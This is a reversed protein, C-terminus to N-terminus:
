GLDNPRLQSGYVHPCNELDKIDETVRVRVECGTKLLAADFDEFRFACKGCSHWANDLLDQRFLDARTRAVEHGDIFLVVTATRENDLYRAWGHICAPSVGDLYGISKNVRAVDLYREPNCNIFEGAQIRQEATPTLGCFSILETLFPEKDKVIKDASVLLGNFGPQQILHLLWGYHRWVTNMNELLDFNMSIRNRNSIAFIDKFTVIFIPNRLRRVFSLFNYLKLKYSRALLVPFVKTMHGFRGMRQAAQVINPRKYGWVQYRSDYEHVVEEVKKWETTKLANSLRVDEYVPDRSFDGTFVGLHHLAGSIISTGSRAVGLVIITRPQGAWASPDTGVAYCGTNRFSKNADM